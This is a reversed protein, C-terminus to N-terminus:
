FLGGGGGGLGGDAGGLGGTGGYGEPNVEIFESLEVWKRILPEQAKADVHLGPYDREEFSAGPPPILGTSPDRAIPKSAAKRGKRAVGIAKEGSVGRGSRLVLDGRGFYSGSVYSYIETYPGLPSPGTPGPGVHIVIGFERIPKGDPWRPDVQRTISFLMALTHARDRASKSPDKLEELLLPVAKWGSMLIKGMPEALPLRDNAWFGYRENLLVPMQTRDLEGLWKEIATKEEDNVFILRPFIEFRVSTRAQFDDIKLEYMGPNPVYYNDALDIPYVEFERFSLEGGQQLVQRGGRPGLRQIADESDVKTVRGRIAETEIGVVFSQRSPDVNQVFLQLSPFNPWLSSFEADASVMAIASGPKEIVSVHLPDDEGRLRRYGTMLQSSIEYRFSQNVEADVADSLAVQEDTWKAYDPAKEFTPYDEHKKLQEARAIHKECLEDCRSIVKGIETAFEADGRNVMEGVLLAVSDWEWYEDEPEEEFIFRRLDLVLEEDSLTEVRVETGLSTRAQRPQAKTHRPESKRGVTDTQGRVLVFSVVLLAVVMLIVVPAHQRSNM